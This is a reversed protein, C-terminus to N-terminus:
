RSTRTMPNDQPKAQECAADLHTQAHTATNHSLNRQDRSYSWERESSMICLVGKAGDVM